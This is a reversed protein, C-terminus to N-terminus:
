CGRRQTVDKLSYKSYWRSDILLFYKRPVPGKPFAYVAPEKIEATHELEKPKISIDVGLKASTENMNRRKRKVLKRIPKKDALRNSGALVCVPLHYSNTNYFTLLVDNPAEDM